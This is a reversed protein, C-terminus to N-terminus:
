GDRDAGRSWHIVVQLFSALHRGMEHLENVMWISPDMPGLVSLNARFDDPLGEREPIGDSMHEFQM